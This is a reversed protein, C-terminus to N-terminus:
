IYYSQGCEHILYLSLSFFLSFFLFNKPTTTPSFLRQQEQM